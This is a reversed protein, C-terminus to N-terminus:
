IKIADWDVQAWVPIDITGHPIDAPDFIKYNNTEWNNPDFDESVVRSGNYFAVTTNVEIDVKAFLGEQAGAIGSSCVNVFKSEYPDPATPDLTSYFVTKIFPLISPVIYLMTVYWFL